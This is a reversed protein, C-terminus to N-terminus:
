TTKKYWFCNNPNLLHNAFKEKVKRKSINLILFEIYALHVFISFFIVPNKLTSNSLKSFRTKLYVIMMNNQIHLFDGIQWITPFLRCLIRTDIKRVFTMEAAKVVYMFIRINLTSSVSLLTVISTLFYSPILL